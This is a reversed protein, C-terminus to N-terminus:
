KLLILKQTQRSDLAELRLFYVGTTAPHGGAHRGDWVLSHRGGAVLGDVLQRVLRGAADYVGLKVQHQESASGPIDFALQTRPNFPNPVAPYLAARLAGPAPAPPQVGIIVPVSANHTNRSDHGFTPWQMTTPNYDYPMDYFYVNGDYSGAVIEVLNDADCDCITPTSRVEGNVQIPFGPVPSGNHNFAHIRGSEDGFLIEPLLDGDIDGVSASSQTTQASPESYDAPFGNILSGSREWAYLEGQTSPIVIDLFGDGNLDALTPTPIRAQQSLCDLSQPWGSRVTGNKHLVHVAGGGVESSVVVDLDGDLDIDGLAAASSIQSPNGASGTFFPWGPVLTGDHNVVYVGGSDDPSFNVTIVIEPNPDADLNGIAATGYSFSIGFLRFLVGQTSPNQDGDFVETGDHHFALLRGGRSAWVIIELDGDLDLDALVASGWNLDDLVSKPWGPKMAGTDTWVYLSDSLWHTAVIEFDGDGELDAVAPTAPFANEFSSGWLSLPGSTRDDDDGDVLETGDVKWAYMMDAGSFVEAIHDGDIDVTTPSSSSQTAVPQPWGLHSPPNTNGIVLASSTSENHSTDRTIVRYYYRTLPPLGSDEFTASGLVTHDNIRTFPGFIHTSREIDYGAIDAEDPRHWTLTISEPSGFSKLSDPAAPRIVDLLEVIAPFPASFYTLELLIEEVNVGAGVDFSLRDGQSTEGPAISGFSATGDTVTVGPHPNMDSSRLVRLTAAVSSLEDQGSNRLTVDYWIDEGAEVVANGNGRPPSDDVDHEYHELYPRHIPLVMVDEFSGQSSTIALTGTPLYAEPASTAIQMVYKSSGTSQGGAGLTGYNVTASQISLVGAPDDFSLTGAVNTLTAGGANKLTIALEITEGADATNDNDGSSAGNQDDDISVLSIHPFGNGSTGVPISAEYVRYYTKHVTLTLNGTTELHLPVIATGSATTTDRGVVVGNQTFTVSAGSVGAGGAQVTVVANPAGIDFSSSHSVNIPVIANSYFDVEPDGLLTTAMLNWRTSSDFTSGVALVHRATDTALGVTTVSDDFVTEFWRNQYSTSPPVYALRSTGIYVISGGAPNKVWREGISNFDISASSCNIAFVMSNRPSNTLGDVDANSITGDGVSMTNRFGHGVHMVLGHGNQLSDIATAADLEISGPYSASEEYLRTIRFWPHVHALALEAKDAGHTSEFLREAMVLVSAPYTGNTPADIEYLLVKDVFAQAEAVTSVPARGVVVEYFLDCEDGDDLGMKGEGFKEDGDANWNGELCTYYMDAPIDETQPVNIRIYRPPVVDTDGGLLVFLTGWNQYADQIFFRVREARDAGNPYKDDIWEVTQVVGTVGKRTKWAALEEFVPALAENTIIVYEVPSGDTSPSHTPQYPGPGAVGSGGAVAAIPQADPVWQKLAAEFRDEIERVVRHRPLPTDTADELEYSLELRNAVTLAGTAPDWRVPFVRICAVRHGRMTGQAGVEAWSEPARVAGVPAPAAQDPREVQHAALHHSGLNQTAVPTANVRALQKDVPLELWITHVPLAADGTAGLTPQGDYHVKVFEGAVEISVRSPEFTLPELTHIAAQAPAHTAVLGTLVLVRGVIAQRNM